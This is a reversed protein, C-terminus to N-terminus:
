LDEYDEDVHVDTNIQHKPLSPAMVHDAKRKMSQKAASAKKVLANKATKSKKFTPPKAPTHTPAVPLLPMSPPLPISFEVLAQPHLM